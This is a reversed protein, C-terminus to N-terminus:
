PALRLARKFVDEMSPTLSGEERLQEVAEAVAERAYRVGVGIRHLAKAVGRYDIQPRPAAEDLGRTRVAPADLLPTIGAPPPGARPVTSGGRYSDGLRPPLGIRRLQHSLPGGLTPRLRVPRLTLSRRARRSIVTALASRKGCNPFAPIVRSSSRICLTAEGPYQRRCTLFSDCQVRSARSRRPLRRGGWRDWPSRASLTASPGTTSNSRRSVLM